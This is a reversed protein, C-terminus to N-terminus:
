AIFFLVLLGVRCGAACVAVSCVMGQNWSDKSPTEAVEFKELKGLRAFHAVIPPLREKLDSFKKSATATEELVFSSPHQTWLRDIQAFHTKILLKFTLWGTWIDIRLALTVLVWDLCSGEQWAWWGLTGWGTWHRPHLLGKRHPVRERHNRDSGCVEVQTWCIVVRPFPSHSQHLPVSSQISETLIKGM